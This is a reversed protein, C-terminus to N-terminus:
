LGRLSTTSRGSSPQGPPPCSTPAAGPDRLGAPRTTVPNEGEEEGLGGRLTPTRNQTCGEPMWDSSHNKEFTSLQCHNPTFTRTQNPM